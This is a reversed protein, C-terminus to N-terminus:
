GLGEMVFTKVILSGKKSEEVVEVDPEIKKVIKKAEEIINTLEQKNSIELILKKNVFDVNAASVGALNKVASEIKNACNACDLGMLILTKKEQKNIIKESVIVHPELKNIIKRTEELVEDLSDTNGVEISLIKTVFNMSASDVANLSSVQAEIKSACNACDLGELLLEKIIKKSM